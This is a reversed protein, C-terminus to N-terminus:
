RAICVAEIRCVKCKKPDKKATCEELIGLRCIAFDYKIPDKPDLRRLSETIDEAMSWGPSKKATLGILRSIRAIHTDLPIILKSPPIDKWLGLDINDGRRVMWRLYLNLRKCASGSSPSPFFFRLYAKKPIKKTGYLGASGLLLARKTFSALADKINEDDDQYGVKFFGGISGHEEIMQRMM